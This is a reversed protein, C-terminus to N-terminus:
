IRRSPMPAVSLCSQLGRRRGRRYTGRHATATAAGSGLLLALTAIVVRAPRVDRLRIPMSRRGPCHAARVLLLSVTAVAWARPTGFEWGFSQAPASRLSGWAFDNGNRDRSGTSLPECNTTCVTGRHRSPQEDKNDADKKRNWQVPSCSECLSSRTAGCM